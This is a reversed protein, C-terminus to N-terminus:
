SKIEDIKPAKKLHDAQNEDSNHTRVEVTVRDSGKYVYKFLYKISGLKSICVGANMHCNFKRILEPSHPVVWPNDIGIFQM